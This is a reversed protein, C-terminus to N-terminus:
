GTEGRGFCDRAHDRRAEDDAAGRQLGAVWEVRDHVRRRERLRHVLRESVDRLVIQQRAELVHRGIGNLQQLRVRLEDLREHDPQVHLHSALQQPTVIRGILAARIELLEPVVAAAPAPGCSSM